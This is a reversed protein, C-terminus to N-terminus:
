DHMPRTNKAGEDFVENISKQASSAMGFIKDTNALKEELIVSRMNGVRRSIGGNSKIILAHWTEHSDSLGHKMNM